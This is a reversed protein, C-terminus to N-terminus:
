GAKLASEDIELSADHRCSPCSVPHPTRLRGPEVTLATECRPCTAHLEELTFHHTWRRRALVIGITLVGLVWPVHPPIVIVCPAIIFTIVLIRVTGRVRWSRSRPRLRVTAPVPDFGFLTIKGDADFTESSPSTDALQSM